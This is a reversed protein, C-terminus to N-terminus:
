KRPEARLMETGPYVQVRGLAYIDAAPGIQKTKGGAQEPAMYSPTGVVAGSQTVAAEGDLRKALGFDTVKPKLWVEVSWSESSRRLARPSVTHHQHTQRLHRWPEQNSKRGLHLM